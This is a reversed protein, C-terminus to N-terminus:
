ETFCNEKKISLIDLNRFKSKRLFSFLKQLSISKNKRTEYTTEKLSLFYVLLSTASVVKIDIVSEQYDM